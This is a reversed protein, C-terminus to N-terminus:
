CFDLREIHDAHKEFNVTINLVWCASSLMHAM